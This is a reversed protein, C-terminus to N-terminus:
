GIGRGRRCLETCATSYALSFIVIRNAAPAIGEGACRSLALTLADTTQTAENTQHM